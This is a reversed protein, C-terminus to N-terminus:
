HSPQGPPIPQPNLSIPGPGHPVISPRRMFRRTLGSTLRRPAHPGKYTAEPLCQHGAPRSQPPRYATQANSVGVGIPFVAVAIAVRLLRSTRFAPLM